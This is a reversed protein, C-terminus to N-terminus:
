ARNQEVLAELDRRDIRIARDYRIVPITRKYVLQRVAKDTRGLFEAAQHVTLLRNQTAPKSQERGQMEAMVQARVVSLVNEFLALSARANVENVTNFTGAGFL